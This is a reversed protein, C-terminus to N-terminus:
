EGEPTSTPLVMETPTPTPTKAFSGFYKIDAESQLKGIWEQMSTSLKQQKLQERISDRFAADATDQDEPMFSKNQEIYSDVEEDSITLDGITAKEIIKQLRLEENVREMTLGQMALIEDFNQGSSSLQERLKNLEEEIEEDSVTISQKKAAQLILEKTILSELVQAGGQSEMEKILTLRSVPVGNVSAIILQQLGVYALAALLVIIVPVMFRKRWDGEQKTSSTTSESPSSSEASVMSQIDKEHSVSHKPSNRKKTTKRAPM